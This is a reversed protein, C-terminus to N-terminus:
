ALALAPCTAGFSITTAAPGVLKEGPGIIPSSPENFILAPILAPFTSIFSSQTTALSPSTIDSLSAPTKDLNSTVGISIPSLM